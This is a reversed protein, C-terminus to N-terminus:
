YAGGHDLTEESSCWQILSMNRTIQVVGHRVVAEPFTYLNGLQVELRWNVGM